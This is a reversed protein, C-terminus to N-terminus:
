RAVEHGIKRRYARAKRKKLAFEIRATMTGMRLSDIPALLVIIPMIIPM